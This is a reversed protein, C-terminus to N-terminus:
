RNIALLGDVCVCVCVRDVGVRTKDSPLWISNLVYMMM